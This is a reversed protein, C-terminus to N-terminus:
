PFPEIHYAELLTAPQKLYNESVFLRLGLSSIAFLSAAGHFPSGKTLPGASTGSLCDSTQITKSKEDKFNKQRETITGRCPLFPM